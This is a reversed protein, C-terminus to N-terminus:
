NRAAANVRRIIGAALQRALDERIRAELSFM